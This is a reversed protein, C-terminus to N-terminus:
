RRVKVKEATPALVEADIVAGQPAPLAAQHPAGVTVTMREADSQMLDTDLSALTENFTTRITDLSTETKLKAMFDAETLGSTEQAAAAAQAAEWIMGAREIEGKFAELQAYALKWKDERNAAVRRLDSLQQSLKVYASDSKGYKNGIIDLKDRFTAIQGNLRGVAEKRENLAIMQRRLESQLTEVPNRAAEGKVLKLRLNGAATEIAPMLMWTGGMIVGAVILGLLGTIASFIYPAVLFGVGLLAAYKAAVGWRRARPDSSSDIPTM